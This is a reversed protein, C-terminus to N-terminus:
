RLLHNFFFNFSCHFSGQGNIACHLATDGYQNKLNVDAGNQIIMQVIMEHGSFPFNEHKVNSEFRYVVQHIYM